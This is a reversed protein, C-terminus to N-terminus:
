SPQAVAAQEVTMPSMKLIVWARVESIDMNDVQSSAWLLEEVSKPMEAIFACTLGKESM